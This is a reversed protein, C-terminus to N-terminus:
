VNDMLIILNVYWLYPGVGISAPAIAMRGSIRLIIQMLGLLDTESSKSLM